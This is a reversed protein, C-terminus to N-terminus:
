PAWMPLIFYVSAQKRLCNKWWSRMGLTIRLLCFRIPGDTIEPMVISRERPKESEAFVSYGM